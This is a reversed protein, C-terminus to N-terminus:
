LSLTSGISLAFNGEGEMGRIADRVDASWMESRGRDVEAVFRGKEIVGQRKERDRLCEELLMHAAFQPVRVRSLRLTLTAFATWPSVSRPEQPAPNEAAEAAVHRNTTSFSTSTTPFVMACDFERQLNKLRNIVEATRSPRNRPLLPNEFGASEAEFRDPWYFATASDLVLLGLRRHLSPHTTAGLLYTPLFDLTALLQASSQPRFIHIHHMATQALTEADDGNRLNPPLVGLLLDRLRTASFRGDTDLWVVATGQGGHQTPLVAKATLHYLFNTKGSAPSSSTLEIVIPKRKPRPDLRVTPHRTTSFGEGYQEGEDEPQPSSWRAPVVPQKPACFINLLRNL